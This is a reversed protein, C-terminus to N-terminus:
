GEKGMGGIGVGLWKSMISYGRYFFAQCVKVTSLWSSVMYFTFMSLKYSKQESSSKYTACQVLIISSTIEHRHIDIVSSDSYFLFTVINETHSIKCTQKSFVTSVDHTCVYVNNINTHNSIHTWIDKTDYQYVCTDADTGSLRVIMSMYVSIFM